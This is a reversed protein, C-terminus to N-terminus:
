SHRRTRYLGSFVRQRPDFRGPGGLTLQASAIADRPSGRTPKSARANKQTPTGHVGRARGRGLQEAPRERRIAFRIRRVVLEHSHRELLVEAEGLVDGAIERREHRLRVRSRGRVREREGLAVPALRYPEAAPEEGGPVARPIRDHRADQGFQRPERQSASSGSSACTHGRARGASNSVPPARGSLVFGAKGGSACTM